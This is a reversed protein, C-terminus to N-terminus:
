RSTDIVYARGTCDGKTGDLYHPHQCGHGDKEQNFVCGECCNAADVQKYKIGDHEFHIYSQKWDTEGNLRQCTEHIAKNFDFLLSGLKRNVYSTAKIRGDDDIIVEAKYIARRM